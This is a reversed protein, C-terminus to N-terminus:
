CSPAVPRVQAEEVSGRRSRNLLNKVANEREETEAEPGAAEDKKKKKKKKKKAESAQLGPPPGGPLSEPAFGPQLYDKRTRREISRLRSRPPEPPNSTPDDCPHVAGKFM